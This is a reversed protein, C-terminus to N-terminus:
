DLPSKMQWYALLAEVPGPTTHLNSYDVSSFVEDFFALVDEPIKRGPCLQPLLLLEATERLALYVNMYPEPQCAQLYRVDSAHPSGGDVAAPSTMYRMRCKRWDSASATFDGKLKQVLSKPRQSFLDTSDAVKNLLALYRDKLVPNTEHEWLLRISIQMQYLFCGNMLKELSGFSMEIGQEAYELEKSRWHGDSSVAYAAAYLAPLRLAEHTAITGYRSVCGAPSVDACPTATWMECAKAPGGDSRLLSYNNAPVACREAYRAIDVLIRGLRGKEAATAGKWDRYRLMSYVFLTYQDRSSNTYHSRGNFPSISRAVFGPVHSVEACRCLGDFILRAVRASEEDGTAANRRLAALLFPGGNLVSDEMGTGWSVPSPFQRSIDEPTPLCKVHADASDGVRYDYILRTKPSYVSTMVWNWADDKWRCDSLRAYASPCVFGFALVAFALRIKLNAMNNYLRKGRM